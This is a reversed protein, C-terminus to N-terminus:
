SKPNATDDGAGTSAPADAVDVTVILAWFWKEPNTLRVSVIGAPRVQPVMVGFLRVPDPVAVTDQLAV